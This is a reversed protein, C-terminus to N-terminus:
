VEMKRKSEGNYKTEKPLVAYLYYQKAYQQSNTPLSKAEAREELCDYLRAEVRELRGNMWYLAFILFASIGHKKTLDLVFQPTM